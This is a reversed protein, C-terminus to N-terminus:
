GDRWGGLGFGCTKENQGPAEVLRQGRRGKRRRVRTLTPHLAFHVEDQLYLDARPLLALLSATDAPVDPLLDPEILDALPPPAPGLADLLAQELVGKSRCLQTFPWNRYPDNQQETFRALPEVEIGAASERVTVELALDRSLPRARTPRLNESTRDVVRARVCEAWGADQYERREARIVGTAPDASVVTIGNTELFRQVRQWVVARDLAYTRGREVDYVKPQPQCAAACLVVLCLGLVRRWRM